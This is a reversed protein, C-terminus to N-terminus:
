QERQSGDALRRADRNSHRCCSCSTPCRASPWRRSARWGRLAQIEGTDAVPGQRQQAGHSPRTTATALASACSVTATPSGTWCRNVAASSRTCRGSDVNLTYVDPFSPTPTRWRSSSTSRTMRCGTFSRTRSSRARLQRPQRPPEPVPGEHSGDSDLVVLRSAPYPVSTTSSARSAACCGRTPRSVAPSWTTPRRQQRAPGPTAARGEAARSPVFREDKVTTLYVLKTGDPSLSPATMEPGAAFQELPISRRPARGAGVAALACACICRRRVHAVASRM